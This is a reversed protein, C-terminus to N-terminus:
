VKLLTKGQRYMICAIHEKRCVILPQIKYLKYIDVDMKSHKRIDIYQLAKEQLRELSDFCTKPASEIMLVGYYIIPLITQKYIARATDTM